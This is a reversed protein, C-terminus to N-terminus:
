STCPGTAAPTERGNLIFALTGRVLRDEPSPHQVRGNEPRIWCEISFADEIDLDGLDVKADSGSFQLAQM